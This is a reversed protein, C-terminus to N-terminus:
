DTKFYNIKALFTKRYDHFIRPKDDGRFIRGNKGLNLDKIKKNLLLVLKENDVMKKIYGREELVSIWAAIVSKKKSDLLFKFDKNLIPPQYEILIQYCYEPENLIEDMELIPSDNKEAEELSTFNYNDNVQKIFEQRLKTVSKEDIVFLNKAKRLNSLSESDITTQIQHDVLITDTSFQHREVVLKQFEPNKVYKLVANFGNQTLKEFKALRERFDPIINQSSLLIFGDVFDEWAQKSISNDHYAVLEAIQIFNKIKGNILNNSSKSESKKIWYLLRKSVPNQKKKM